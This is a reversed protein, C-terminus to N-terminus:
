IVEYHLEKKRFTTKHIITDSVYLIAPLVFITVLLSVLTGVGLFLGISAVVGSDSIFGILFGAVILIFGSTIVTAISDRLTGVLAEKKDMKKRLCVYRNSVVIAYDITAGMQIASVILYSIFFIPENMLTAIGFNIFISGEIALILLISLAVSKFTFLLIILIFFITVLTIITNDTTFSTKLDQANITNGVLLVDDYYHSAVERIDDAIHFAEESEVETKVDVLIRTYEESELLNIKSHIKNYYLDIQNKLHEQLSLDADHLFYILDIMSIKLDKIDCKYISAYYQYLQQAMKAPINMIQALEQSTVKTGLYLNNDIKESGIAKVNLVKEQKLLDDALLLEKEYDKEQNKILLVIQNNSGFSDDIKLKAEMNENVQHALVSNIDYVYRYKPILLIAGILLIIFIPLIFNKKNVIFQCLITTDHLLNKHKTKVFLKRFILLLSPLVLIVTLLSCLIGKSLVLGIDAGIRLQMFVLAMLGAITTLSSAFIEPISKSVTKKLALIQDTTDSIEKHYHNLFIILYDLSLALQLIVAISETIYSIEKFIFNTGMNILISLSFIIFALVIDFYSKSTLFLVIVIVGVALALILNMGGVVDESFEDYLYYEENEVVNIIDDKLQETEEETLSGVNIIYLANEDKYFDETNGFSINEISDIKLLNNYISEAEDLSVHSVMLELGNLNGFEKEMLDIGKKTETDEPLYSTIEYNISVDHLHILAFGAVIMFLFLFVYRFHVIFDGLKVSLNKKNKEKKM